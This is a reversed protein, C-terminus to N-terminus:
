LIISEVAQISLSRVKILNEVCNHKVNNTAVEVSNAFDILDKLCEERKYVARLAMQVPSNDNKLMEVEKVLASSKDKAPKHSIAFLFAERQPNPINKHDWASVLSNTLKSVIQNQIFPPKKFGKVSVCKALDSQSPPNPKKIKNPLLIIKKRIKRIRNQDIYKDQLANYDPIKGLHFRNDWSQERVPKEKQSSLRFPRSGPVRIPLHNMKYYNTM